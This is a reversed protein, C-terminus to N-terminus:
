TEMENPEPVSCGLEQAAWRRIDEMFKEFEVTNLDASHRIITITKETGDKLTITRTDSIFLAKVILKMEKVTYGTHRSLIPLVVGHFYRNEPSSRPISKKTIIEYTFQCNPCTVKRISM